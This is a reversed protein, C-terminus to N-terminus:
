EIDDAYNYDFCNSKHELHLAKYNMVLSLNIKNQKFSLWLPGNLEVLPM